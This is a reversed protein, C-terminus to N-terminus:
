SRWGDLIKCHEYCSNRGEFRKCCITIDEQCSNRGVEECEPCFAQCRERICPIMDSFPNGNIVTYGYERMEEESDYLMEKKGFREIVHNGQRPKSMVPCVKQASGENQPTVM